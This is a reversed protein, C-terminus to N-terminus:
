RRDQGKGRDPVKFLNRDDCQIREMTVAINESKTKQKSTTRLVMENGRSQDKVSTTM